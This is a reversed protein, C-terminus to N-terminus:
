KISSRVSSTLAVRVLRPTADAPLEGLERVALGNEAEVDCCPLPVDQAASCVGARM